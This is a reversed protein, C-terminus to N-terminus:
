DDEDNIQGFRKIVESKLKQLTAARHSIQNKTELPLEAMTKGFDPLYFIPDYGFGNEGAPFLQILGDCRGEVVIEEGSHPDVLAMVCIFAAKRKEEPLDKLKEMLKQNNEEDTADEGAYRASYIGPEGGLYEVSLGSDDALTLLGTQEARARAKKLANAQFSDGDEEVEPLAPFEDLGIIELRIGNLNELYTKIERIKGRNASAVLLKRSM